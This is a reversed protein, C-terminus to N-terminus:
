KFINESKIAKATMTVTIVQQVLILIFTFSAIFSLNPKNKEKNSFMQVM